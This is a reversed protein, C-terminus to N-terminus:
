CCSREKSAEKTSMSAFNNFLHIMAGIGLRFAKLTTYENPAHMRNEPPGLRVWAWPLQLVDSFVYGPGSAEIIPKVVPPQGYVEHLTLYACQAIMSDTKTKGSAIGEGSQVEIEGFGMSNLYSKLENLIIKPDQGPVLRIDMKAKAEAPLVTKSGKGQYGSTLGSINCTPEFYLAKKLKEGSLGHKFREVGIEQRIEEDTLGTENVIELDTSEAETVGDYFHPINVHGDKEQILALAQILQWAPNEIIAAKASHLDKPAGRAILEVFLMGKTGLVLESRGEVPINGDCALLADAELLTRYKEAIKAFHRSGIEEEGELLFKITIPLPIGANLYAEVAKIACFFNGKDDVSGRAYIRDGVLTAAFPPYEWEALPEPPQVDYHGYILLIEPREGPIEAYVSPYGGFEGGILKAAFNLQKFYNLLGQAAEVMGEGTASISPQRLIERFDHVDQGFNKEATDIVAQPVSSNRVESTSAFAVPIYAQM